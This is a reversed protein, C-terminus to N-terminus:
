PLSAVYKESLYGSIMKKLFQCRKIREAARLVDRESGPMCSSIRLMQFKQCYNIVHKYSEIEQSADQLFAHIKEDIVPMEPYAIIIMTLLRKLVIGNSNSHALEVLDTEEEFAGWVSDSRVCALARMYNVICYAGIALGGCVAARLAFPVTLYSSILDKNLYSSPVTATQNNAYLLKINCGHTNSCQIIPSTSHQPPTPLGEDVTKKGLGFCSYLLGVNVMMKLYSVADVLPVM